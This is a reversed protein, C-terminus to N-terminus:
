KPKIIKVLLTYDCSVEGYEDLEQGARKEGHSHWRAEDWVAFKWAAWLKDIFPQATEMSEFFGVESAERHPSDIRSAFDVIAVMIVM